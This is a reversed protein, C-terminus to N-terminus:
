ISWCVGSGVRFEMEDGNSLNRILKLATKRSHFNMVKNEIRKPYPKPSIRSLKSFFFM